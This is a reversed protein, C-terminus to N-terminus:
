KGNADSEGPGQTDCTGVSIQASLCLYRLSSASTAPRLYGPVHKVEPRFLNFDVLLM